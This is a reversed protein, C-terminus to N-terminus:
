RWLVLELVASRYRTQASTNVLVRRQSAVVTDADDAPTQGFSLTLNSGGVTVNVPTGNREVALHVDAQRTRLLEQQEQYSLADFADMKGPDIVHDPDTLGVVEVTEATWNEPHGPGRVLLDSVRGARDRLAREDNFMLSNREALNWTILSLNVILIFVLISAIMDVTFIQGSRSRSLSSVEM